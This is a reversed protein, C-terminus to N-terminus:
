TQRPRRIHPIALRNEAFVALARIRLGAHKNQVVERELHEAGLQHPLRPADGCLEEVVIHRIRETALEGQTGALLTSTSSMLTMDDVTGRAAARLKDLTDPAADLKEILGDFSDRTQTVIAGERGFDFAKKIAIAAGAVGAGVGIFSKWSDKLKKIATDVGKLEANLDKGGTGKKSISIIIDILYRSPM